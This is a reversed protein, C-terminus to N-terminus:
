NQSCPLQKSLNQLAIKSASFKKETAKNSLQLRTKLVLLGCRDFLFTRVYVAGNQYSLRKSPVILRHKKLNLQLIEKVDEKHQDWDEHCAEIQSKLDQLCVSECNALFTAIEDDFKYREALLLAELGLQKIYIYANRIANRDVICQIKELTEEPLIEATRRKCDRFIPFNDGYFNFMGSTLNKALRIQTNTQPKLRRISQMDVAFQTFLDSLDLHYRALTQTASGEVPVLGKLDTKAEVADVLIEYKPLLDCIRVQLRNLTQHVNVIDDLVMTVPAGDTVTNGQLLAANEHCTNCIRLYLCGTPEEVPSGVINILAWQVTQSSKKPFLILTESSCSSCVVAGCVKCNSKTETMSFRKFCLTCSSASSGSMWYKSKQWEPIKVFSLTETVFSKIKSKGIHKKYGDVLRELEGNINNSPQAQTKKQNSNEDEKIIKRWHLFDKMHSQTAGLRQPGVDFCSKCVRYSIGNPDPQALLTLRRRFQSCKGCFVEGCRRCHHKRETLSFKKHCYKEACHKRELANVWHARAIQSRGEAKFGPGENVLLVDGVSRSLDEWEAHLSKSRFFNSNTHTM